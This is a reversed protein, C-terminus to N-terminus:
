KHLSQALHALQLEVRKIERQVAIKNLEMWYWVKGLGIVTTCAFFGGLWPLMSEASTAEFFRLACYFGIGAATLSMVLVIAVGWKSWGRFSEAIIDTPSDEKLGNLAALEDEGLLQRIKEDIDKM